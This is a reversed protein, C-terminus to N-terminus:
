RYGIILKIQPSVVKTYFVRYLNPDKQRFRWYSKTEDVKGHLFGLDKLHEKADALTRGKRKKVLVSQVESNPTITM